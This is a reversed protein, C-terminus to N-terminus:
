CCLGQDFATRRGALVNAFAKKGGFCARQMAGKSPGVGAVRPETLRQTVTQGHAHPPAVRTHCPWM